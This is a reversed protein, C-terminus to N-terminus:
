RAPPTSPPREAGPRRDDAVIRDRLWDVDSPSLLGAPLLVRARVARLPLAVHGGILRPASFASYPSQNESVATRVTLADDGLDVSM